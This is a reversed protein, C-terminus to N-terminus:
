EQSWDSALDKWDPNLSEILEIKKSRLWGKIQKEREIGQSPEWHEEYYVLMTINYRNTFGKVAKQKHECVRRHLDNTFSTYLTKTKNSMIYVYCQKMNVGKTM